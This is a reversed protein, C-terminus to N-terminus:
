LRGGSGKLVEVTPTDRGLSKGADESGDHMEMLKIIDFKPKKLMKVKRIMTDRLPFISGCAKQIQDGIANPILKKMLGKLDTTSAEETMIDVMKKRIARVQASQAYCTKKAQGPMKTTFAIAFMRLTYGDSTKVDVNAEILTVWKKILSCLKDRTLDFGHFNTMVNYGQVDECCLKVKRFMQDDDKNLDALSIEFVRGKLGESAIKTGATRTILTKGADKNVFISPAKITYWEKKDFPNQAKKKGGKKSKTLRKNKGVAM